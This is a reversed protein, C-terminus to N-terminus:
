DCGREDVMAAAQAVIPAIQVLKRGESFSVRMARARQQDLLRIAKAPVRIL